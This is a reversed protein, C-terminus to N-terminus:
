PQAALLASVRAELEAQDAERFGAHALHVRGQRDILYSSPMGKVQFRAATAGSPDYAVTFQAPYRELFREVLAADKDLNVAVVELGRDAFREQLANMWPFSERCPTCWSAWFDLYVVKGRLEDLRLEGVDTRWGVDPAPAPSREPASAAMLGGSFGLSLVMVLAGIVPNRM